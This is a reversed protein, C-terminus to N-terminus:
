PSIVLVRSIRTYSRHSAMVREHRAQLEEVSPITM